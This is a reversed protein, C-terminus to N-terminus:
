DRSYLLMYATKQNRVSQVIKDLSKEAVIGDDFSVWRDGGDEPDARLADATYHGSNATNGIHHVISKLGYNEMPLKSSSQNDTLLKGVSLDTTLEVPVKNKKFVLETTEEAGQKEVVMFRKLHLLIVKPVSLIKMTQTAITGEECKECNVERDEPAFFNALCSDVAPKVSKADGGNALDRGIDISLYRYMEEKSRSYGCHKCKLCVQVNWRFYEDTPVATCTPSVTEGDTEEESKPPSLEEHIQDIVEGLFEHADRQQFGHFRDTLKDVVRKFPKASASISKKDKSNLNAYLDSLRTTLEHGERFPALAQMFTPVSFLQQLSSNVYCSNGDNRLGRWKAVVNNSAAMEVQPGLKLPQLPSRDGTSAGTSSDAMTKRSVSVPSRLHEARADAFNLAELASPTSNMKLRRRKISSTFRGGLRRRKLLSSTLKPSQSQSSEIEEIPDEEEISMREGLAKSESARVIGFPSRRAKPSHARLFPSRAPTNTTETKTESPVVTSAEDSDSQDDDLIAKTATSAKRMKKPTRKPTLTKPALQSAKSKPAFFSNKSGSTIAKPKSVTQDKEATSIKSRPQFFSNIKKNNQVNDEEDTDNAQEHEKKGEDEEVDALKVSASPKGTAPTVVRDVTTVTMQATNTQFLDDDEDESDELVPGRRKIRRKKSKTTVVNNVSDDDEEEDIAAKQNSKNETEDEVDDKADEVVSTHDNTSSGFDDGFENESEEESKAAEEEEKVIEPKPEEPVAEEEDDTWVEANHALNAANKRLFDYPRKSYTKRSRSKSFEKRRMEHELREEELLAQEKDKKKQRKRMEKKYGAELAKRFSEWFSGVFRQGEPPIPFRVLVNREISSANLSKHKPEVTCTLEFGAKEYDEDRYEQLARQSEDNEDNPDHINHKCRLSTMHKWKIKYNSGVYIEKGVVEIPVDRFEKPTKSNSDQVVVTDFLLTKSISDGKMICDFEFVRCRALYNEQFSLRQSYNIQQTVAIAEM